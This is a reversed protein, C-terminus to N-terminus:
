LPGGPNWTIRGCGDVKYEVIFAPRAEEAARVPEALPPHYGEGEYGALDRESANEPNEFPDVKEVYETDARPACVACISLQRGHECIRAANELVPAPEVKLGVIIDATRALTQEYGTVRIDSVMNDLVKIIQERLKDAM